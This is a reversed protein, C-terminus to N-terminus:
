VSGFSIRMSATLYNDLINIYSEEEGAILCSLSDM